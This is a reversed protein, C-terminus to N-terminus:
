NANDASQRGKDICQERFVRDVLLEVNDACVQFAVRYEWCGIWGLIDVFLRWTLGGDWCRIMGLFSLIGERNCSFLGDREKLIIYHTLTRYGGVEIRSLAWQYGIMIVGAFVSFPVKKGKLLRLITVIPPLLGLTVFFNWHVGYETVHEQYELSKTTIVRVVGILLVIASSRFAQVLQELPGQLPQRSAVVGMSFVVSGVGLDM